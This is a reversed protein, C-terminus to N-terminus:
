NPVARSRGWAPTRNASSVDPEQWADPRFGFGLPAIGSM